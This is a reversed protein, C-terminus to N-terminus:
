STIDKLIPMIDLARRGKKTLFYEVRPPVEGFSKRTILKHAELNRLTQILMKESIGVVERKLIGFRKPTDLHHIIMMAWKDGLMRLAHCLNCNPDCKQETKM